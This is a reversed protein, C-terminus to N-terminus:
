QVVDAEREHESSNGFSTYELMYGCPEQAVNAVNPYKTADSCDQCTQETIDGGQQGRGFSEAM